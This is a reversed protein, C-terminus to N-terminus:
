RMLRVIRRTSASTQSKKPKRPPVQRKKTERSNRAGTAETVPARRKCPTTQLVHTSRGVSLVSDEKEKDREDSLFLGAPEQTNRTDATEATGTYEYPPLPEVGAAPVSDSLLRNVPAPESLVRLPLLFEKVVVLAQQMIQASSAWKALRYLRVGNSHVRAVFCARVRFNFTKEFMALGFALQLQHQFRHSNRAKEYPHKMQGTPIDYNLTEWKKLEIMVLYGSEHRWIQDIMTAIGVDQDCVGVQAAVPAFGHKDMYFLFVWVLPHIGLVPIMTPDKGFRILLAVRARLRDASCPLTTTAGFRSNMIIANCQQDVMNGQAMIKARTTKATELAAAKAAFMTGKSEQAIIREIYSTGDIGMELRNARMAKGASRIQIPDATPYFCQFLTRTLGAMKEGDATAFSRMQTVYKIPSPFRERPDSKDPFCKRNSLKNPADSADAVISELVADEIPPVQNDSPLRVPHELVVLDHQLAASTARRARATSLELSEFTDPASPHVDLVTRNEHSVARHTTRDTTPRRLM